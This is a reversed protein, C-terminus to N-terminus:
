ARKAVLISFYKTTLSPGDAESLTLRTVIEDETGLDQGIALPSNEAFGVDRLLKIVQDFYRGDKLFVLTESNKAIEKVSELNYCSPIVSLKEGGEALSIGAKSAFTFMSVIGPVVNVSIDSYRSELERHLYIWTSYLYPDGITLYVARAGDRIAGALQDANRKWADELIRRDKTMPFVLQLIKQRSEDVLPSVAKLAMSQKGEKSTPCAIIDANKIANVARVTLLEPDGPGCGVATLERMSCDGSKLRILLQVAGSERIM